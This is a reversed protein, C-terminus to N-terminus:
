FFIEFSSNRRAARQDDVPLFSSQKIRSLLVRMGAGHLSQTKIGGSHRQWIFHVSRSSNNCSPQLERVQAHAEKDTTVIKINFIAAMGTMANNQQAMSRRRIEHQSWFNAEGIVTRKKFSFKSKDMNQNKRLKLICHSLQRSVTIQFRQTPVHNKWVISKSQSGVSSYDMGEVTKM